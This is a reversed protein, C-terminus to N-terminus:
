NKNILNEKEVLGQIIESKAKIKIIALTSNNIKAKLLNQKLDLLFKTASIYM